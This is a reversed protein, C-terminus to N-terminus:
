VNALSMAYAEAARREEELAALYNQYAEDALHEQEEKLARLRSIEADLSASATSLKQDSFASHEKKQELDDAHQTYISDYRVGQKLDEILNDIKGSVDRADDNFDMDIKNKIPTLYNIQNKYKDALRKHMTHQQLYYASSLM